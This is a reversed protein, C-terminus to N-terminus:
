SKATAAAAEDIRRITRALVEAGRVLDDPSTYEDKSHSIGRVSPVFIM